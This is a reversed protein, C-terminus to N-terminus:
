HYLPGPKEFVFVDGRSAILSFGHVSEIKARLDNVSYTKGQYHTAHLEVIIQRCQKLAPGDNLILGAEAGEIDSVLVFNEIQYNRLIESLTVTKVRILQDREEGRLRSALNDKSIGFETELPNRYDIARNLVATVQGGSNVALNKRITEILHPNAEVCIHKQEAGRLQSIHVSVVGLSAGLEVVDLDRRMFQLVFNIEAKEYLGWFLSAAVRRSIHRNNTDIIFGRNPVQGQYARSILSSFFPHCAARIIIKKATFKTM